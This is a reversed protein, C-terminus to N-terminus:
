SDLEALEESLNAGEQWQRFRAIEEPLRAKAAEITSCTWERVGKIKSRKASKLLEPRRSLDHLDGLRQQAEALVALMSEPNEAETVEDRFELLYRLEKFAIRLEHLSDMESETDQRSGALSARITELPEQLARRFLNHASDLAGASNNTRKPKNARIEKIAAELDCAQLADSWERRAKSWARRRERALSYLLDCRFDAKEDAPTCLVRSILVDWDRVHGLAKRQGKLSEEIAAATPKRLLPGCVTLAARAKRTAVRLRHVDRVGERKKGLGRQDVDSLRKRLLKLMGRTSLPEPRAVTPGGNSTHASLILAM